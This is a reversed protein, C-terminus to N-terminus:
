ARRCSQAHPPTCSAGPSKECSVARSLGGHETFGDLSDESAWVWLKSGERECVCVKLCRVYFMGLLFLLMLM